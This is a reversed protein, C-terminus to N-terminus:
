IETGSRGGVRYERQRDAALADAEQV